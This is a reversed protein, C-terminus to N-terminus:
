NTGRTRPERKDKFRLFKVVILRPRDGPSTVPKGSGHACEVEIKRQDMQFKETITKRVNEEYEAWNEHSFEPIGDM